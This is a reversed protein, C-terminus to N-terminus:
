SVTRSGLDLLRVGEPPEGHLAAKLADLGAPLATRPVGRNALLSQLWDLFDTFITDDCVLMAAALFQVNFALDERTRTLQEDNYNAMPPFRAVLEPLATQAIEAARELMHLADPDPSAPTAPIPRGDLRWQKLITAAQEANLAWADAGLRNARESNTGFARGGVIVPVGQLQAIDILRIAGPFFIPLSCSIALSDANRRTLLEAVYPAPTSAGLVTVGFGLGHLSEGFMQAALSHWDGEACVVVTQGDGALPRVESVLADLAAASVGTAIHEDAVTLENRHWREGVERQAAALLDVIVREQTAGRDFMDLTSRIASRREGSVADEVYRDVLSTPRDISKNPLDGPNAWVWQDRGGEKARYLAADAQQLTTSPDGVSRAIGASFTIPLPRTTVWIARLRELFSDAGVHSSLIVVFEEGGFRGVFDTGRVVSHLASGFALLVEDGTHHGFEDNVSKFHDLDVMIVTANAELRGLARELTRRNPLNTLRDTSAEEDLREVRGSLQLARRADLLFPVLFVDLRARAESGVPASAVLPEGDGFSIDAPLEGADHTRAPLVIGGLGRVLQETALRADASTQVWLLARTAEVVVISVQETPGGTTSTVGALEL